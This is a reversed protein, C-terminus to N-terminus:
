IADEFNVCLFSEQGTKVKKEHKHLISEQIHRNDQKVKHGIKQEEEESHKVVSGGKMEEALAPINYWDQSEEDRQKMILLSSETSDSKTTPRKNRNNALKSCRELEKRANFRVLVEDDYNKQATQMECMKTLHLKVFNPSNMPDPITTELLLTKVDQRTVEHTHDHSWLQYSEYMVTKFIQRNVNIKIIVILDLNEKSIAWFKNEELFQKCKRILDHVSDSIARIKNEANYIQEEFTERPFFSASKDVWKLEKLCQKCMFEHGYVSLDCLLSPPPTTKNKNTLLRFADHFSGTVFRNIFKIQLKSLREKDKILGTLFFESEEICFLLCICHFHLFHTLNDGVSQQELYCLKDNLNIINAKLSEIYSCEKEILITFENLKSIKKVWIGTLLDGSM